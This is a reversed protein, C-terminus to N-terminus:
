LGWTAKWMREEGLPRWCHRCRSATNNSRAHTDLPCHSVTCSPVVQGTSINGRSSHPGYYAMHLSHCASNRAVPAARQQTTVGPVVRCMQPMYRVRLAALLLVEDPGVVRLLAPHQSFAMSTHFSGCPGRDRLYRFVQGDMCTCVSLAAV